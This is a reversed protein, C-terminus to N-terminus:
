AIRTVTIWSGEMLSVSTGSSNNQCWQFDLTAPSAGQILMGSVHVFNGGTAGGEVPLSIETETTHAISLDDASSSGATASSYFRVGTYGIRASLVATSTIWKFRADPTASSCNLLLAGEIKYVGGAALSWGSLDTSTAPTTTSTRTEIVTVYKSVPIYGAGSVFNSVLVKKHVGDTADFVIAYDAASDVSTIATLGSIDAKIVNAGTNQVGEGFTSFVSAGASDDWVLAADAGPDTLAEIGLHSISLTLDASLDGGGTLGAGTNIMRSIPVQGAASAILTDGGTITLGSGITLFSGAGASDDWYILRDAGPDTLSRLDGVIGANYDAWQQTRLPTMLTTNNSGGEAQAQSALDTDDLKTQSHTAVNNFETDIETGLIKKAPDGSLLGDKIAFNVTKSYDSM